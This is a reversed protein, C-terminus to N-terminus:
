RGAGRAERLEREAAIWNDKAEGGQSQWRRYAAEAIQEHTPAIKADGARHQDRPGSTVRASPYRNMNHETM